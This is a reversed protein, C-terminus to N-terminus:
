QSSKYPGFYLINELFRISIRTTGSEISPKKYKYPKIHKTAKTANAHDNKDHQNHNTM